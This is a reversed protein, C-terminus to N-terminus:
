FNSQGSGERKGTVLESQLWRLIEVLIDYNTMKREKEAWIWVEHFFLMIEKYVVWAPQPSGQNLGQVRM